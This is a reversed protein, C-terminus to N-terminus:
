PHGFGSSIASDVRASPGSPQIPPFPSGKKATIAVLGVPHFEGKAPRALCLLGRGKRPRCPQLAESGTRDARRRLRRSPEGPWLGSQQSLAIAPNM